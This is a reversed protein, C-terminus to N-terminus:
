AEAGESLYACYAIALKAAEEDSLPEWVVPGHTASSIDDEMKDLAHGFADDPDEGVGVVQITFIYASSPSKTEL